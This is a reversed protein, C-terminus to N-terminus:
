DMLCYLMIAQQVDLLYKKFAYGVFFESEIVEETVEEGRYFPPCPNLVAGKNAAEMAPKTVQCQKFEELSNKPLSDTCVIDKGIIAEKINSYAVLGDIEYGKACCQELEFGMVESAEKWALGINGRTGCFLYKDKIFDKRIKSLSFMDSLVECPHNCDTMANVIPVTSYKAIEELVEIKNHRVIILDAWQNLYGCVDKLSEKKDLTEPPFLISQGGMLYIGKEFAIRTRVSTTPFFLVISKGKLANNYNGQMVQESLTFIEFVDSAKYDTLRILHKM